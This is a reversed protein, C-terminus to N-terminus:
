GPESLSMVAQGPDLDIFMYVDAIIARSLYLSSVRLERRHYSEGAQTEVSWTVVPQSASIMLAQDSGREERREPRPAANRM